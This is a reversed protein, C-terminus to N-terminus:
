HRDQALQLRHRPANCYGRITELEGPRMDDEVPSTLHPTLNSIRYLSAPTTFLGYGAKRMRM